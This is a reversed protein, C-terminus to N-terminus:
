RGYEAIEKEDKEQQLMAKPLRQKRTEARWAADGASPMVTGDGYLAFKNGKGSSSIELSKIFEKQMSRRDANYAKDKEAKRREIDAQIREFYAVASPHKTVDTLVLNHFVLENLPLYTHKVPHEWIFLLQWGRCMWHRIRPNKVWILWREHVPSFVAALDPDISRLTDAFARPPKKVGERQPHWYWPHVEPGPKKGTHLNLPVAFQEPRQRRRPRPM